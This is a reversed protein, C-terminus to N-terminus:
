VVVLTGQAPHLPLLEVGKERPESQGREGGGEQQGGAAALGQEGSM